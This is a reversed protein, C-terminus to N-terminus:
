SFCLSWTVAAHTLKPWCIVSLPYEAGFWIGSTKVV